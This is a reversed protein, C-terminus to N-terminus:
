SCGRATLGRDNRVRRDSIVDKLFSTGPDLRSQATVNNKGFAAVLSVTRAELLRGIDPKIETTAIGGGGGGGGLTRWDAADGNQRESGEDLQV